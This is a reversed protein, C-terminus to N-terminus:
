RRGARRRRPVVPAFVVDSDVLASYVTYPGSFADSVLGLVEEVEGSRTHAARRVLDDFYHAYVALALSPAQGTARARERGLALVEPEVFAAAAALQADAAQARGFRAM